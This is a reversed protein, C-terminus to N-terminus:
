SAASLYDQIFRQNDEETMEEPLRKLAIEIAKDVLESRFNEKVTVIRNQLKQKAMELMIQSQQRAEDIIDQKRKEGQRIIREKLEKFHAESEDLTKLTEQIKAEVQDREEEMQRIERALEEKRNRLFNMLPPGGFKVIVFALIAFNVWRMVLDYTARWDAKGAAEATEAFGPSALCFWAILVMVTWVIGVKKGYRM